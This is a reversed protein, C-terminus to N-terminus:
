LWNWNSSASCHELLLSHVFILSFSSTLQVKDIGEYGKAGVCRSGFKCVPLESTRRDTPTTKKIWRETEQITLFFFLNIRIPKVPPKTKVYNFSLKNAATRKRTAHGVEGGHRKNWILFFVGSTQHIGAAVKSIPSNLESQWFRLM